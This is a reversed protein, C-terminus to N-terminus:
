MGFRQRGKEQEPTLGGRGEAPAIMIRSVRKENEEDGAQDQFELRPKILEDRDESSPRTGACTSFLGGM